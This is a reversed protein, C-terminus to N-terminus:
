QVENKIVEQYINYFISSPNNVLDQTSGEEVLIGNDIVLIKDCLMITNIRHAIILVTCNSFQDSIVKQIKQETEFDINATAEDILVLKARKLIARAICMLQKEGASLNDGSENIRTNLGNRQNILNTLCCDNLVQRISDDDHQQFPDLNQRISGNFIVSDQQISTISNRLIQLSIQSIDINDILIQGEQAELLRLLSLALTSKGAGTRGVIGIKENNNIKYSFNKLALPLDPRYKVSLNNFSILGQKPWDPEVKLTPTNIEQPIKTFELCREFSIMNNELTSLTDITQQILQDLNAVYTLILGIFSANNQIVICYTIATM